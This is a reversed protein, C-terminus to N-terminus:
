LSSRSKSKRRNRLCLLSSNAARRKAIVDRFVTFKATPVGSEDLASNYDYSTTQPRYGGDWNAGNMFGFTTGGHFMYLNVSYGQSLMWDLESAEREFNTKHHPKGWQDFWGAWYEQNMRLGQPRFQALTAFARQASGPGFNVAAPVDALTGFPLQEPGDATFLPVEGFGAAVSRM